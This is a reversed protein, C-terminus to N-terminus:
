PVSLSITISKKLFTPRTHRHAIKQRAIPQFSFLVAECASGDQHSGKGDVSLTLVAASIKRKPTLTAPTMASMCSSM